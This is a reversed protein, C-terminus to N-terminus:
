MLEANDQATKKSKIVSESLKDIREAQVVLRQQFEESVQNQMEDVIQVSAPKFQNLQATLKQQEESVQDVKCHVEESKRLTDVNNQEIQM